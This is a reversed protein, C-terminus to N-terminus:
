RATRAAQKPTGCSFVRADLSETERRRCVFMREASLANKSAPWLQLTQGLWVCILCMCFSTMKEQEECWATSQSFMANTNKLLNRSRQSTLLLLVVLSQLIELRRGGKKEGEGM